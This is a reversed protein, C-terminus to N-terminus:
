SNRKGETRNNRDGCKYKDNNEPAKQKTATFSLSFCVNKVNTVAALGRLTVKRHSSGPGVETVATANSSEGEGTKM